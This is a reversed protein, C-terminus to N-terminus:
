QSKRFHPNQMVRARGGLEVPLDKPVQPAQIVQPPGPPGDFMPLGPNLQRLEEWAQQREKRAKEEGEPSWPWPRGTMERYQRDREQATLPMKHKPDCALVEAHYVRLTVDVETSTEADGYIVAAYGNYLFPRRGVYGGLRNKANVSGCVIRRDQDHKVVRLDEFTASTPDFLSARMAAKSDDILQADSGQYMRGAVLLLAVAGGLAGLVALIFKRMM